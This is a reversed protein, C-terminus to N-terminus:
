KTLLFSFLFILCVGTTSLILGFVPTMGQACFWIFFGASISFFLMFIADKKGFKAYIGGSFLASTMGFSVLLIILYDLNMIKLIEDFLFSMSIFVVSVVTIIQFIYSLTKIKEEKTNPMYLLLTIAGTTLLFWLIKEMSGLFIVNQRELSFFVITLFLTTIFVNRVLNRLSFFNM